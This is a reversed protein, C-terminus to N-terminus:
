TADGAFNM